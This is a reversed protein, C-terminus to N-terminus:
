GTRPPLTWAVLSHRVVVHWAEQHEGYLSLVTSLLSSVSLVSRGHVIQNISGWISYFLIASYRIFNLCVVHGLSTAPDLIFAIWDGIPRSGFSSVDLSWPSLRWVLQAIPCEFFIHEMKEEGHSCDRCGIMMDLRTICAVNMRCPM